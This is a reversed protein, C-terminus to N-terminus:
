LEDEGEETLLKLLTPKGRFVAYGFGPGLEAYLANSIHNLRLVSQGVIGSGIWLGRSQDVGRKFWPQLTVGSIGQNTDYLIFRVRYHLEAKELLTELHNKGTDSLMSLLKGIGTLIYVRDQFVPPETGERLSAKYSNNRRVMEMSLEMVAEEFGSRVCTYGQEQAGDFLDDADLVTVAVGDLCAIAAATAWAPGLLESSEQALALTILSTEYDQSVISMERKSVGVPVHALDSLACRVYDLDVREPLVPIPVARVASQDSLDQSFARLKDATEAMATQYEYVADRKVLGRGPAKSPVTNRGSGLLISYEVSDVFQLTFIQKFNQMLRYRVSNSTQATVMFYLGYKEGDRTLQLVMDELQEFQEAFVAYNHLAVLIRPLKKGSSKCYSAYDGGCEAFSRRRRSVELSLMQFLNEMRETEGAALVGGVQPAQAFVRLTEAGLDILYLNLEQASYDQLMSHVATTLFTSKGSGMNGFLLANGGTSFDVTLLDQRQHAPDDYEGVVAEFRDDPRRYNYQARLQGLDIKRRLPPLWLPQARLNDARAIDSLYQVVAVVQTTEAEERRSPLRAESAVRGLSDIVAVGDEQKRGLGGGPIYPAGSWASQGKAFYENFGVQLYFRGTEKLEAADPRKIMDMSDSKDQVKLCVKFRSNSWIQDDVVGAPKQTALILHVGLSRGIRATSILQDMFEAQQSKLEAFEDSIIFLHPMPESVQGNRYLQQYKYIDITGSNMAQRTQRFVIERRKLESELSVMSRNIESGDLNTITGALHPLRVGIDPNEFAGTLGGGKYDILIFAVEDPAYNAALSLILSIMFESKGSGTMGAVLGHPGHVKEHLDLSFLEGDTGVGVPVGLTNVPNNQKWRERVNLHETKDLRYMELFSVSEPLEYQGKVDLRINAMERCAARYTGGEMQDCQFATEAQAAGSDILKKEWLDVIQTCEKPLDRRQEAAAVLFFGCAGGDACLQGAVDFAALPERGLALVVYFPLPASKERARDRGRREAFLKELSASLYKGEERSGAVMRLQDDWTHPLWKAERWLGEDSSLLVLKVETYSHFVALQLALRRMFDAIEAQGGIVGSIPHELLSLTIPVDKLNHPVSVLRQMDDLLYDENVSFRPPQGDLELELPREGTGVRVSLFDQQGPMREWLEPAHNLVRAAWQRPGPYNEELISKQEVQIRIIEDQLRDLYARYKESREREAKRKRVTDSHRTLMPWLITACLMSFSMVMTPITNLLTATGLMYNIVGAFATVVATLAMTVAPGLVLAPPTKDIREPAPPQDVTLKKKQMARRFRPARYFLEQKPSEYPVDEQGAAKQPALPAVNRDRVQVIGGPNNLAFFGNGVILKVGVICIVDGPSLQTKTCRRNNVYTGNRSNDDEVLWGGDQWTLRAHSGSIYRSHLVIGSGEDRGITLTCPNRPVYKQFTGRRVDIPEAYLRADPRQDFFRLTYFRGEELDAEACLAGTELDEVIGCVGPEAKIHWYVGGGEIQALTERRGDATRQLPFQGDVKEPLVLTYLQESEYVTVIM